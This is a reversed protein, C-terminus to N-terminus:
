SSAEGSPGRVVAEASGRLRVLRVAVAAAVALRYLAAATTTRVGRRDLATLAAASSLAALGVGVALEGAPLRGARALTLAAAGATVPLSMLLSFHEAVRSDVQLLRLATLTAGSRSVGPVLATVQALAAAAAERPGVVTLTSPRRDAAWMLSGAAALVVATPGPRGLRAEVLKAALLGAVAAPVTSAALLLAKRRDPVDRRV